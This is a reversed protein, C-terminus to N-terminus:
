KTIAAASREEIEAVVRRARPIHALCVPVIFPREPKAEIRLVAIFSLLLMALTAVGLLITTVTSFDGLVALLALGIAVVLREPYLRSGVSAGRVENLDVEFNKTGIPLFGLVTRPTAVRMLRDDVALRSRMYWTVGNTLISTEVPSFEVGAGTPVPRVGSDVSVERGSIM